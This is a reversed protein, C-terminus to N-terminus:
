NNRLQRLQKRAINISLGGKSVVMSTGPNNAALPRLVVAPQCALLGLLFYGRLVFSKCGRFAGLGSDM